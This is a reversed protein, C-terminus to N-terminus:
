PVSGPSPRSLVQYLPQAHRLPVVQTSGTSQGLNVWRLYGVPNVVGLMSLHLDADWEHGVFGELRM